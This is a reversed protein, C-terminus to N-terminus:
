RAEWKRIVAQVIQRATADQVDNVDHYAAGNVEIILRGDAATRFHVVCGPKDPLDDLIERLIDELEDALPRPGIKGASSPPPTLARSWFSGLEAKQKAKEFASGDPATTQAPAKPAAPPTSSLKFGRELLGSGAPPIPGPEVKPPQSEKLLAEGRKALSGPSPASDPPAAPAPEGAPAVPKPPTAPTVGRTFRNLDAVTQLLLRSTQLDHVDALHDYRKGDIEVYIEGTKINRYIRLLEPDAVAPKTVLVRASAAAGKQPAATQDAPAAPPQSGGDERKKKGKNSIISAIAWVLIGLVILILIIGVVLYVLLIDVEM